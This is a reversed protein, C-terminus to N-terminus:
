AGSNIRFLVLAVLMFFIATGLFGLVGLARTALFGVILMLAVLIGFLVEWPIHHANGAVALMMEKRQM